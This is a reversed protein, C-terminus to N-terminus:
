VNLSGAPQAIAAPVQEFDAFDITYSAATSTSDKQLRVTGGAAIQPLLARAEDYFRHALGEGPNNTFPYAGYLWSYKSTLSLDAQRVGNIYLSLPNSNGTGAANDPISYRVVISNAQQPLTFEVYQGTANLTVARRGSSEAAITYFARNSALITGNTSANEAELEIYPLTAGSASPKASASPPSSVIWVAVLPTLSILLTLFIQNAKRISKVFTNM